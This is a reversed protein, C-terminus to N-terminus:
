TVLLTITTALIEIGELLPVQDPNLLIARHHQMMARANVTEAQSILSSGSLAAVSGDPLVGGGPVVGGGAVGGNGGGGGGGGEAVSWDIKSDVSYGFSTSAALKQTV